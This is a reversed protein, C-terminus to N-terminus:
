NLVDEDEIEIGNLNMMSLKATIIHKVVKLLIDVNVDGTDEFYTVEMPLTENEDLGETIERYTCTFAVNVLSEKLEEGAVQLRMVAKLVTETYAAVKM